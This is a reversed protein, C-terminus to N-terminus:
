HCWLGQEMGTCYYLRLLLTYNFYLPYSIYTFVTVKTQVSVPQGAFKEVDIDCISVSKWNNVPLCVTPDVTEAKSRTTESDARRVVHVKPRASESASAYGSKEERYNEELLDEKISSLVSKFRKKKKLERYKRSRM